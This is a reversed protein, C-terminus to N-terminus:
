QAGATHRTSTHVSSICLSPFLGCSDKWPPRAFRWGGWHQAPLSFLISPSLIRSPHPADLGSAGWTPARAQHISSCRSFWHPKFATFTPHPTGLGGTCVTSPRVSPLFCEPIRRTPKKPAQNGRKHSDFPFDNSSKLLDVHQLEYKFIFVGAAPLFWPSCPSWNSLPDSCYSLLTRSQIDKKKWSHWAPTGVRTGLSTWEKAFDLLCVSAM